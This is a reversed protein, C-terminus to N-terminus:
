ENPWLDEENLYSKPNDVGNQAFETLGYKELAAFTVAAIQLIEAMPSNRGTHNKIWGEKAEALEQEIIMLYGPITQRENRGWKNEQHKREKLILDYVQHKELPLQKM